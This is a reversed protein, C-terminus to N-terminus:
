YGHPIVKGSKNKANTRWMGWAHWWRREEGDPYRVKARMYVYGVGYPHVIVECNHKKLRRYFDLIHEERRKVAQDNKSSLWRRRWAEIDEKYPELYHERPHDLVINQLSPMGVVKKELGGEPTHILTEIM